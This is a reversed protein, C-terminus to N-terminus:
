SRDQPILHERAIREIDDRTARSVVLSEPLQIMDDPVHEDARDQKWVAIFTGGAWRCINDGVVVVMSKM